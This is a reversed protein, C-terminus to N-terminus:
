LALRSRFASTRTDSFYNKKSITSYRAEARLKAFFKALFPVSAEVEAGTEAGTTGALERVNEIESSQRWANVSELFEKRIGLHYEQSLAFLKEMTLIFLEVYNVTVPDLEYVSYNLVLFRDAIDRAMKNLETSKGCGRYGSFLIQLHGDPEALLRRKLSKVPDDGRGAVTDVYWRELEEGKLPKPLLNTNISKLDAM